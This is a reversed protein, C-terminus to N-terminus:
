RSPAFEKSSANSHVYGHAYDYQLPLTNLSLNWVKGSNNQKAARKKLMVGICRLHNISYANVDDYIRIIILTWAM